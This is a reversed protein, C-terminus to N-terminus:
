MDDEGFNFMFVSCASICQPTNENHLVFYEEFLEVPQVMEKPCCNVDHQEM